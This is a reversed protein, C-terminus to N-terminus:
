VAQAAYREKDAKEKARYEAHKARMDNKTSELIAPDVTLGALTKASFAKTEQLLIYKSPHGFLDCLISGNDLQRHTSVRLYYGRPRGDKRYYIEAKLTENGNHWGGSEASEVRELIETSLTKTQKHM